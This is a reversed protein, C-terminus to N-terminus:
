RPAVSGAASPAPHCHALPLPQPATAGPPPHCCRGAASPPPLLAASAADLPPPCARAPGPCDRARVWARRPDQGNRARSGAQSLLCRTKRRGAAHLDEPGSALPRCRRDSHTQQVGRLLRAACESAENGLCIIFAPQSRRLQSCAGAPSPFPVAAM